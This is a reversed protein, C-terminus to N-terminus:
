NGQKKRHDSEDFRLYIVLSSLVTEPSQPNWINYDAPEIARHMTEIIEGATRPVSWIRFEDIIPHLWQVNFDEEKPDSLGGIVLTSTSRVDFGVVGLTVSYYKEVGNIYFTVRFVGLRDQDLVLALHM